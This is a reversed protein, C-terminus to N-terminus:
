PNDALAPSSARIAAGASGHKEIRGEEDVEPLFQLLEGETWGECAALTKVPSRGGCFGFRPLRLVRPFSGRRTAGKRTNRTKRPKENEGEDAAGGRQAKV